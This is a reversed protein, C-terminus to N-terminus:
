RQSHALALFANFSILHKFGALVNATMSVVPLPFVPMAIALRNIWPVVMNFYLWLYPPPKAVKFEQSPKDLEWDPLKTGVPPRVPYDVQKRVHNCM